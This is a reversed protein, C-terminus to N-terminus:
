KTTEAILKLFQEVHFLQSRTGQSTKRAAQGAARLTGPEAIISALNDRLKSTDVAEYVPIGCRMYGIQEATVYPKEAIIAHAKELEQRIDYENGRWIYTHAKDSRTDRVIPMIHRAKGTGCITFQISAEPMQRVADVANRLLTYDTIEGIWLLNLSTSGDYEAAIIAPTYEADFSTIPLIESKEPSVGLRAYQEKQLTDEFIWLATKDLVEDPINRPTDEYRLPQYIIAYRANSKKAIIEASIAAIAQRNTHVVVADYRSKKLIGALQMSIVFSPAATELPTITNGTANVAAHLRKRAQDYHRPALIDAILM